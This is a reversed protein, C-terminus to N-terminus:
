VNDPFATASKGMFDFKDFILPVTRGDEYFDASTVSANHVWPVEKMDVPDIGRLLCTVARIPTAHTAILVTRGMNEAAIKKVEGTIRAYLEAVSEGGDPHARGIDTLWTGYSEPFMKQLECYKKGGWRGAFIERLSEDPLVEKNHRKAITRGTEFARSLDSAYFVDIKEDKLFEATMEAQLHGEESLPSNIHGVFIGSLNAESQGHRVFIIKAKNM